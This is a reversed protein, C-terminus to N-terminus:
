LLTAKDTNHHAIHSELGGREREKWLLIQVQTSRRLLVGGAEGVCVTGAGGPVVGDEGVVRQRVLGAQGLILM